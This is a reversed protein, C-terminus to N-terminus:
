KFLNVDDDKGTRFSNETKTSTVLKIDIASRGALFLSGPFRQLMTNHERALSILEKQERAFVARQDEVTNMLQKYLSPDLNPNAEQVFSAMPKTKGGYRADAMGVFIERFGDKYKEAIQAQQSITKWVQDFTVECEQQKALVRNRLELESNRYYFSTVIAAVVIVLFFGISVIAGGAIGRSKRALSHTM